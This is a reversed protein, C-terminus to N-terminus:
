DRERKRWIYKINLIDLGFIMFPFHSSKVAVTFMIVLLTVLFHFVLLFIQLMYLSCLILIKLILAKFILLLFVFAAIFFLLPIIYFYNWFFYIFFYLGIVHSSINLNIILLHFLFWVFKVRYQWINFCKIVVVAILYKSQCVSESFGNPM